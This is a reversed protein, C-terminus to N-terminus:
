NCGNDVSCFCCCEFCHWYSASVYQLFASRNKKQNLIKINLYEELSSLVRKIHQIIKNVGVTDLDPVMGTQSLPAEAIWNVEFKEGEKLSCETFTCLSSLTLSVSENAPLNVDPDLKGMYKVLAINTPAVASFVETM